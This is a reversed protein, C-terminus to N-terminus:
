TEHARLHTYSVPETAVMAFRVLNEGAPGICIVHAGQGHAQKLRSITDGTECGRLGEADKIHAKGGEVLVYSFGPASGRLIIGDYGAHKMAAGFLGGGNGFSYQDPYLHPSKAAMIWRSCGIAPTGTLPGALLMLVNDPELAKVSEATNDWYLRSALLRGGIFGDRYYAVDTTSIDGGCLDIHLLAGTWGHMSNM